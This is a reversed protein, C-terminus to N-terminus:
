SIGHVIDVFNTVRTDVEDISALSLSLRMEEFVYNESQCCDKFLRLILLLICHSLLGKDRCSSVCRWSCLTMSCVVMSQPYCSGRPQSNSNQKHHSIYGIYSASLKTLIGAVLIFYNCGVFSIRKDFYLVLKQFIHTYIITLKTLVRQLFCCVNAYVCVCVCM